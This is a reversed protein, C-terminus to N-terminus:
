SELVGFCLFDRRQSRHGQCESRALIYKSLFGASTAFARFIRCRCGININLCNIRIYLIHIMKCRAPKSGQHVRGAFAHFLQDGILVGCEQCEVDGLASEPQVMTFAKSPSIGAFQCIQFMLPLENCASKFFTNRRWNIALSCFTHFPKGHAGLVLISMPGSAGRESADAGDLACATSFAQTGNGCEEATTWWVQADRLRLSWTGFRDLNVM